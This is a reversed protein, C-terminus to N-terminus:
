LILGALRLVAYVVVALGWYVFIGWYLTYYLLPGQSSYAFERESFWLIVSIYVSIAGSAAWLAYGWAQALIVGVTGAILLPLWLLLDAWAVGHSMAFHTQNRWDEGKGIIIDKAQRSQPRLAMLIEAYAMPLFIFVAGAAILIWTVITPQFM